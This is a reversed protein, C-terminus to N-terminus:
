VEKDARNDILRSVKGHGLDRATNASDKTDHPIKEVVDLLGDIITKAHGLIPVAKPIFPAAYNGIAFALLSWFWEEQLFEM